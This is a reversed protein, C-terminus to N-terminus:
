YSKECLFIMHLDSYPKNYQLLQAFQSKNKIFARNFEPNNIEAGSVGILLTNLILM